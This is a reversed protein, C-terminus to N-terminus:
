CCLRQCVTLICLLQMCNCQLNTDCHQEVIEGFDGKLAFECIVQCSIAGERKFASLLLKAYVAAKLM